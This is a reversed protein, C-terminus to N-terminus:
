RFARATERWTRPRRGLVEEIAPEVVAAAPFRGGAIAIVQRALGDAYTPEMANTLLVALFEESPLGVCQVDEGWEASLEAAAQEMTLPEGTLGYTKGAHKAPVLLAAAAVEAIDAVAVCSLAADGFFHFLKRSRRAGAILTDIFFNPRLHTYSFGLAEAYREVFQHWSPALLTTDDPALAGLHVVHRVGAAKAADLLSKSHVLMDVSYGTLLFVADVGSVAESVSGGDAFDFGVAAVRGVGDPERYADPRRTACRIEGEYGARILSTVVASGVTGTAGTVLIRRASNSTM